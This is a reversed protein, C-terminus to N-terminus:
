IRGGHIRRAYEAILTADTMGSHIKRCQETATFPEGPWLRKAALASREKTDLHAATGELMQKQWTKPPVLWYACLTAIVGIVTGYSQAFTFTSKAGQGPFSHVKEICAIMRRTDYMRLKNLLTDADIEHACVPIPCCEVLYSEDQIIALGGSLGPDVGVFFSPM